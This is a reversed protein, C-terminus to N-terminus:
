VVEKILVKASLLVFSNQAEPFRWLIGGAFRRFAEPFFSAM